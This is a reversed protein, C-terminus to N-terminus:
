EDKWRWWSSQGLDPGPGRPGPDPGSRGWLDSPGPWHSAPGSRIKYTWTWTTLLGSRLTPGPGSRSRVEIKWHSYTYYM